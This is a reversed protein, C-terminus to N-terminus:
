IDELESKLKRLEAEKQEIKRQIISRDTIILKCDKSFDYRHYLELEESGISRDENWIHYPNGKLVWIWNTQEKRIAWELIFFPLIKAWLRIAM